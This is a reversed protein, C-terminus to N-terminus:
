IAHPGPVPGIAVPHHRELERGEGATKWRPGGHQRRPERRLGAELGERETTLRDAPDLVRIAVTQGVAPFVARQPVALRPDVEVAVADAVEDEADHDVRVPATDGGGLLTGILVALVDEDLD